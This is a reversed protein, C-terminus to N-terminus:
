QAVGAADKVFADMRLSVNVTQGATQQQSAAVMNEVILFRPSKDLLDIFKELSAYSGEYGATIIAMSLTESGEIPEEAISWPLPRVGAEKAAKSLEDTLTSSLTRADFLYKALFDDGERRATEVKDALQRSAGLRREGDTLQRSLAAQERRLDEASGGFPKLAMVAAVLNALLLAGLVARILVRPDRIEVGKWKLGGRRFNRLM